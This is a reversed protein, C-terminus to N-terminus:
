RAASPGAQRVPALFLLTWMEPPEAGAMALIVFVVTMSTNLAIALNAGQPHPNGAKGPYLFLPTAVPVTFHNLAVFPKPNM